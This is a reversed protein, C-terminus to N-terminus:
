GFLPAFAISYSNVSNPAKNGIFVLEELEKSGQAELFIETKEKFRCSLFIWPLM